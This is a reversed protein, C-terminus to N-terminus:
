IRIGQPYIIRNTKLGGILHYVKKLYAEIVKKSTFCSDCLGYASGTATPLSDIIHCVKDIKCEVNKNYREILYPVSQKQCSLLAAMM